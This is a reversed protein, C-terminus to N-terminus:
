PSGCDHFNDNFDQDWRIYGAYIQKKASYNNSLFKSPKSKGNFLGANFLDL